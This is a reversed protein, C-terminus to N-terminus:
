QCHSTRDPTPVPAPINDSAAAPAIYAAPDSGPAHKFLTGLRTLEDLSSRQLHAPMHCKLADVLKGAATIFVTDPTVALSFIYKHKHFVKEFVRPARTDKTWM